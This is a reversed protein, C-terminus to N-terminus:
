KEALPHGRCRSDVLLPRDRKEARQRRVSCQRARRVRSESTAACQGSRGGAAYSRVRGLMDLLDADKPMATFRSTDVGNTIVYIKDERVGRQILNRKFSHTVSIVATSNRYLFLEIKEFFNLVAESKVAGVARISEPWIDRLEFIWPRRKVFASACAACAAFFQPSTGIIITVRRVFLSAVFATIMYSLYDLIRKAFGENRAIFSWVRIVRIGDIEETHWLRNRYGEFVKGSPFNPACTIVTVEHGAKVWERCHEYTRSAPANVEPPFNDSFFLIHM